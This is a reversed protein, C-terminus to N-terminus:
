FELSDFLTQYFFSRGAPWYYQRQSRCQGAVAAALIATPPLSPVSPASLMWVPPLLPPVRARAACLEKCVRVNTCMWLTPARASCCFFFTHYTSVLEPRLRHCFWECWSSWLATFWGAGDVCEGRPAHSVGTHKTLKM